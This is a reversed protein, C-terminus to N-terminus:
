GGSFPPLVDVRSAGSLSDEPGATRGDVLFACRSFVDALSLGSASASAHREGLIRLADGLTEASEAQPDFEEQGAGRAAKAAAFYHFTTM